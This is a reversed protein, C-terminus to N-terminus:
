QNRKIRADAATINMDGLVKYQNAIVTPEYNGSLVLAGAEYSEDTSAITVLILENYDDMYFSTTRQTDKYTATILEKEKQTISIKPKVKVATATISLNGTVIFENEIETPSYNGSLIPTGAIHDSPSNAYVNVTIRDRYDATFSETYTRSGCTVRITEDQKQNITVRYSIPTVETATIVTDEKIKINSKPIIKGANYGYEVSTIRAILVANLPLNQIETNGTYDTGSYTVTITQHETQVITATYTTVIAPSVTFVKNDDFVGTSPEVTGGKYGPYGVSRATFPTGPLATFNDKYDIGNVTVIISQNDQQIISAKYTDIKVDNIRVASMYKVPIANAFIMGYNLFGYIFGDIPATIVITAADPFSANENPWDIYKIKDDSRGLVNNAKDLIAFYGIKTYGKPLPRDEDEIFVKDTDNVFVYDEPYQATWIYDYPFDPDVNLTNIGYLNIMYDSGPVLNNLTNSYSESTDTNYANINKELLRKLYRFNIVQEDNTDVPNVTVGEGIFSPSDINAIDKIENDTDLFQLKAM